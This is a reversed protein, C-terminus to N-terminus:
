ISNDLDAHFATLPPIACCKDMMPKLVNKQSRFQMYADYHGKSQWKQYVVVDKKDETVSVEVLRCGEFGRTVSLGRSMFEIFEEALAPDSKLHFTAVVVHLPSQM